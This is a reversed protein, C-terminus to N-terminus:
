SMMQRMFEEVGKGNVRFQGNDLRFTVSYTSGNKTLLGKKEVEALMDDVMQASMEETKGKKARPKRMGSPGMM